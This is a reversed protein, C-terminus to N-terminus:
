TYAPGDKRDIKGDRLWREYRKGNNAHWSIEAPGDERELQGDRHWGEYRKVGNAHWETM